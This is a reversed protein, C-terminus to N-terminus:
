LLENAMKILTPNYKVYIIPQMDISDCPKESFFQVGIKVIRVLSFKHKPSEQLMKIMEDLEKKMNLHKLLYATM